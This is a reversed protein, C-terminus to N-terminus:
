IFLRVPLKVKKGERDKLNKLADRFIFQVTMDIDSKDGCYMINPNVFWTRSNCFRGDETRSGTEAIGLVGKKKLSNMLKSASTRHLGILSAIYSVGAAKPLTNEKSKIPQNKYDREVIVNTKFDIYGSIRFLFSEEATTLYGIDVLMQINHQMIQAFAVRSNQSRKKHLGYSEGTLEKLQDLLNKTKNEVSQEKEIDRKRANLEAQKLSEQMTRTSM